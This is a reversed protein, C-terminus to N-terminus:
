QNQLTLFFGNETKIVLENECGRRKPAPAVNM